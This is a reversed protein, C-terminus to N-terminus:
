FCAAAIHLVIYRYLTAVGYSLLLTLCQKTIWTDATSTGAAAAAVTIEDRQPAYYWVQGLGIKKWHFITGENLVLYPSKM